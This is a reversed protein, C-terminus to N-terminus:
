PQVERGPSSTAITSTVSRTPPAALARAVIGGISAPEKLFADHGYLSSVEHLRSPGALRRALERLQATPVLVDSDVGVLTTPVRVRSPDVRHRDISESLRLYAKACFRERFREGQAALYDEVPFVPRGASGDSRPGERPPRDFRAALEEASRYTTM